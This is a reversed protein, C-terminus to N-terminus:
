QQGPVGKVAWCFTTNVARETVVRGEWPLGSQSVLIGDLRQRLMAGASLGLLLPCCGLEVDLGRLLEACAAVASPQFGAALSNLADM